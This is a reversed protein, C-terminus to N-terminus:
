HQTQLSSKNITRAHKRTSFMFKGAHQSSDTSIRSLDDRRPMPIPIPHLRDPHDDLLKNAHVGLFNSSLHMDDYAGAPLSSRIRRSDPTEKFNLSGQAEDPM